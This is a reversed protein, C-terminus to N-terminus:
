FGLHCFFVLIPYKNHIRTLYFYNKMNASQLSAKRRQELVTVITKMYMAHLQEQKRGDASFTFVHNPRMSKAISRMRSHLIVQYTPLKPLYLCQIYKDLFIPKPYFLIFLYSEYHTFTITLRESWCSFHQHKFCSNISRFLESFKM